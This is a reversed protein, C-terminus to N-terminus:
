CFQCCYCSFFRMVFVIWLEMGGEEERAMGMMGKGLVNTAMGVMWVGKSLNSLAVLEKISQNVLM